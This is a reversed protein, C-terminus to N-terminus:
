DGFVWYCILSLFSALFAIVITALISQGHFSNAALVMLTAGGYQIIGYLSSAAGSNLTFPVMAQGPTLSMVIGMGMCALAIATAPYTLAEIGLLQFIIFGSWGCLMLYFGTYLTAKIGIKPVIVRVAIAGTALSADFLAFFFGVQQPSFNYNSSLFYPFSTLCILLSGFCFTNALTNKLFFRNKLVPLFGIEGTAVDVSKLIKRPATEALLLIVLVLATLACIEMTWFIYTWDFHTILFGGLIPSIIPIPVFVLIVSSMAKTAREAGYVDRVVARCLIICTAGGIGQLLRFILLINLNRTSLCGLTAFCYLLIGFILIARRGFRDSLSGWFLHAAAFGFLFTHILLKVEYATAQFVGTLIPLTPTLLDISISAFAMLLALLLIIWISEPHPRYKKVVHNFM